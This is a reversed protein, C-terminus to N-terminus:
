RSHSEGPTQVGVSAKQFAFETSVILVLRTKGSRELTSRTQSVVTGVNHTAVMRGLAEYRHRALYMQRHKGMYVRGVEEGSSNLYISPYYCSRRGSFCGCDFTGCEGACSLFHRVM